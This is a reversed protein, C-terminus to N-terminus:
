SAIKFFNKRDLLLLILSPLFILIPLDFVIDFITFPFPTNIFNAIQRFVIYILEAIQISFIVITFWWAWKKRKLLLLGSILLFFSPLLIIIFLFFMIIFGPGMTYDTTMHLIVFFIAGIVSVIIIWWVAIKTKIPLPIQEM